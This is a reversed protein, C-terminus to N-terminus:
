REGKSLMWHRWVSSVPQAPLVLGAAELAAWTTEGVRVAKKHRTYCRTCCGRTRAVREHCALCGVPNPDLTLEGREAAQVM